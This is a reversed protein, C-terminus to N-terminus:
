EITLLCTQFSPVGCVPGTYIRVALLNIGIDYFIYQVKHIGCHVFPCFYRLHCCFHLFPQSYLNDHLRFHLLTVRHHLHHPLYISNPTTDTLLAFEDRIQRELQLGQVTPLIHKFLQHPQVLVQVFVSLLMMPERMQAFFVQAVPRQELGLM